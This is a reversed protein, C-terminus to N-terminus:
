ITGINDVSGNERFCFIHEQTNIISIRFDTELYDLAYSTIEKAQVLKRLFERIIIKDNKIADSFSLSQLYSHTKDITEQKLM